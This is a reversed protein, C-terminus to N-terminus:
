LPDSSADKKWRNLAHQMLVTQQKFHRCSTCIMLHFRVGLREDWALDRDQSSLVLHTVDKCDPILKM